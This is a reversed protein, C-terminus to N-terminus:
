LVILNLTECYMDVQVLALSEAGTVFPVPAYRAVGLNGLDVTAIVTKLDATLLDLRGARESKGGNGKVVADDFWNFFPGAETEPLTISVPSCDFASWQREKGVGTVTRKATLASVKSIHTAAEFGQVSFRFARPLVAKSTNVPLPAGSPGVLRTMEPALRLTLLFQNAPDYDVPGLSVEVIVANFFELRRVEAGATGGTAVLAGNKPILGKGLSSGIWDALAKMSGIRFRLVLDEYRVGGTHKRQFLEGTPPDPVIEAVANGGEASYVPTAVGDVELAQSVVAGYNAGIAAFATSRGGFSSLGVAIGGASIGIARVLDRRSFGGASRADADDSQDV